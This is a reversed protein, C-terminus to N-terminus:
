DLYGTKLIIPSLPSFIRPSKGLEFNRIDEIKDNLTSLIEQVEIKRKETSEKWSCIMKKDHFRTAAATGFIM